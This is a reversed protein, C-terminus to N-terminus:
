FVINAGITFTRAQPHTGGDFGNRTGVEPDLGTFGTFTYLNEGQLFLRLRQIYAKRVLHQPLTYGLQVVKLRLYSGDEIFMDSVRTTNNGPDGGVVHPLWNSTGEGHWRGLWYKEWNANAVNARRYFKYIENGAVGQFLANFDFNNWETTLTFGFTWNPNPDGIMTRDDGTIGNEGDLDKWRVDGPQAYPQKLKGDKTVYSNVEDWNQFIGDHVYGYFFGYPKDNERWTVAGGLGGGLWELESRGDGQDTVINEVYSANASLGIRVKQINFRYSAEFEFGENKVTGQNVKMSYFGTYEPLAVNLLMDKTKKNFYDFSFTLANKFMRLDFGIDIQESTEWKLDPNVYGSTKAGTYVKGGAVANSGMSMISTYGFAGIKENGNQGWSARLKAFEMWSLRDAMFNERTLVWGVSVSPFIAYKHDKGFNSSGDRRLVGELLYKEDYNYNLRAFTSAIRHDSASGETREMSRDATAINIYGKDMDVVLLDYDTGKLSSYKYSMMSTGALVDFNHLGISTGYSLINEWQWTLSEDRTNEVRSNANKNTASLEYVPWVRRNSGFYWDLGYTTKYKLGPFLDFDLSFNTGFIQPIREQNNNVQMDAFPNSMGVEMINFAKGNPAVVYNPYLLKYEELRTPDEQYIPSTPPLMNMSAILGGAESNSITTGTRETRSYSLISGLTVKSLWKRNENILTTKYNLRANYRKYNSYGKAYVGDQDLIGFSAYYTSQEGGGSVSIKHNIVPANTYTLEKQWDTDITSPQPFPRELSPTNDAMENMMMQYERSNMLDVKREPNQFGYTFEYSIAAKAAKTGQKTTVLIVGNAGRAGYIAASAADKLIEISEIDSPNLFNIGNSSPMGDVIYLPNSDNVTGVGRIRIKSDSGPQGSESIITVGSVKGKLANQVNTPNGKDLDASTVRSVSSSMVSKKQIGYGVVVIEDLQQSTDTFRISLNNEEKTVPYEINEYGVFTFVIVEGPSAKLQFNGDIDTAVGIHPRSKIYANAGPVTEGIHDYVVGKLNVENQQAIAPLSCLMM